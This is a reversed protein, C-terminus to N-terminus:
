RKITNFKYQIGLLFYRGLILMNSSQVYSAQITNARNFSSNFINECRIFIDLNKDPLLNRGVQSTMLLNAINHESETNNLFLKSLLLVKYNKFVDGKFTGNFSVTSLSYTNYSNAIKFKSTNNNLGASLVADIGPKTYSIGLNSDYTINKSSSEATSRFNSYNYNLNLVLKLLKLLSYEYRSTFFDSQTTGINQLVFVPDNPDIINNSLSNLKQLYGTNINIGLKSTTLRYTISYNDTISPKISYNEVSPLINNNANALLTLQELTNFDAKKNFDFAITNQESFKYTYTVSPLFKANRTKINSSRESVQYNLFGAEIQFDSHKGYKSINASLDNVTQSYKFLTNVNLSPVAQKLISIGNDAKINLTYGNSFNSTYRSNFKYSNNYINTIYFSTSDAVPASIYGTQYQNNKQQNFFEHEFSFYLYDNSSRGHKGKYNYTLKDSINFIYNQNDLISALQGTNNTTTLDNYVTNNFSNENQFKINQRFYLINNSNIKYEFGDNVTYSRTQTKSTNNYNSKLLTDKNIDARETNQQSYLNNNTYNFLADFDIKKLTKRFIAKAELDNNLGSPSQLDNVGNFLDPNNINNSKVNVALQDNPSIKSILTNTTQRDHTGYGGLLRSIFGSSSNKKLVVNVEPDFKNSNDTSKNIVQVKDIAYAPLNNLMFENENFLFKKGNVNVANVKNGNYYVENNVITIGPVKKLAYETMNFSKFVSDRMVFDLTDKSKQKEKIVVERLKLSKLSLLIDGLDIEKNTAANFIVSKTKYNNLAISITRQHFSPAKLRFSGDNLTQYVIVKDSDTRLSFTRLGLVERNSSDKLKGKIIIQNNDQAYIRTTGFLLAIIILWKHM